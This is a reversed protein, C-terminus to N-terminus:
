LKQLLMYLQWITGQTVLINCFKQSVWINLLKKTYHIDKSVKIKSNQKRSNNM